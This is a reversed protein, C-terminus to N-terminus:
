TEPPNEKLWGNTGSNAKTFTFQRSRLKTVWLKDDGDMFTAFHDKVEVVAYNLSVLWVSDQVRQAELRDLENYLADYEGSRAENVLDYALLFVPMESVQLISYTSFYDKICSINNQKTILTLLHLSFLIVL